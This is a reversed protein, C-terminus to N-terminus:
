KQRIDVTFKFLVTAVAHPAHVAMMKTGGTYNLGLKRNPNQALRAAYAKVEDYIKRADADATALWSVPIRERKELIDRLRRAHREVGKTYLLHVRGGPNLLEKAAVWNPLPNTGVLLLLDDCQHNSM